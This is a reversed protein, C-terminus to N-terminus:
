LREFGIDNNGQLGIISLRAYLMGCICCCLMACTKFIRSSSSTVVCFTVILALPLSFLATQMCVNHVPAAGGIRRSRARRVCTLLAHVAAVFLILVWPWFATVLLQVFYGETCAPPAFIDASIINPWELM